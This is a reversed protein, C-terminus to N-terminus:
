VRMVCEGVSSRSIMIVAKFLGAKGQFRVKDNCRLSICRHAVVPCQDAPLAAGHPPRGLAMPRIHLHSKQRLKTAVLMNNSVDALPAAGDLVRSCCVPLSVRCRM